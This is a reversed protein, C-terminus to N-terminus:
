AGKERRLLGAADLAIKLFVLLILGATPQDLSMLLFGSAILGVHLVVVRRYPESMLQQLGAREYEGNRIYDFYFSVAHSVALLLVATALSNELPLDSIVSFNDMSDALIKKLPEPGFLAIVFVGHVLTFIGYHFTFFPVFFLKGLWLVANNPRSALLKFINFLGIVVNEMWFLFILEFVGWGLELVGYLPFINAALLVVVPISFNQRLMVMM